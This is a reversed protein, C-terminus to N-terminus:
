RGTRWWPGGGAYERPCAAAPPASGHPAPRPAHVGANQTPHAGRRAQSRRAAAAPQCTAKAAALNTLSHIKSQVRTDYTMLDDAPLAGGGGRGALQV